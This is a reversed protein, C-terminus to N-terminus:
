CGLQTFKVIPKKAYFLLSDNTINICGTFFRKPSLITQGPLNLYYCKISLVTSIKSFTLNDREDVRKSTFGAM